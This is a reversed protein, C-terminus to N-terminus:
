GNADGGNGAIDGVDDSADAGSVGSGADSAADTDSTSTGSAGAPPTKGTPQELAEALGLQMLSKALAESITVREGPKRPTKGDELTCHLLVTKTKAM